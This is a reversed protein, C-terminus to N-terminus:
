CDGPASRVDNRPFDAILREKTLSAVNQLRHLLDKKHASPPEGRLLVPVGGAYFVFKKRLNRLVKATIFGVETGADAVATHLRPLPEEAAASGRCTPGSVAHLIQEFVRGEVFVADLTEIMCDIESRLKAIDHSAVDFLRLFWTCIIGWDASVGIAACFKTDLKRLLATARERQDSDHRRDSAIYALLTAVPLLM